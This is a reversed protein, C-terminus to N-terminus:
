SARKMKSWGKHQVHEAHWFSFEVEGNIKVPVVEKPDDRKVENWCKECVYVPADM